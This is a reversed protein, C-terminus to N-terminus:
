ASREEKIFECFSKCISTLKRNNFVKAFESVKKTKLLKTNQFRYSGEFIERDEKKFKELNLYIFDVIAKEPQAMLFLLGAEDKCAEFGRFAEPIM